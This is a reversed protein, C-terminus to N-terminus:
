AMSTILIEADIEQGTFGRLGGRRAYPHGVLDMAAFLARDRESLNNLDRVTVAIGESPPNAPGGVMPSRVEWSASNFVSSLAVALGRADPSQMDQAVYVSGPHFRLIEIMERLVEPNIRRPELRRLRAELADILARAQDPTAGALKSKYEAIQDDRAAIRAKLTEIVGGYRWSLALWVLSASASFGLVFTFPAGILVDLEDFLYTKINDIM